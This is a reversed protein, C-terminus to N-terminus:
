RKGEKPKIELGLKVMLEMTANQDMWLERIKGAEIRYLTYGHYEVTRGTPVAGMFGRTDTVRVTLRAVVKEKEAILDDIIHLSDSFSKYFTECSTRLWERGLTEEGYYIKSDEAILADVIGLNGKDLESIWRKVIEKNQEEVEAQARLKELEAMAEKNQCSFAFCLLFALLIPILQKKM